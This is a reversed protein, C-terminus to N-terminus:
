SHEIVELVLDALVIQMQARRSARAIQISCIERGRARTIVPLSM